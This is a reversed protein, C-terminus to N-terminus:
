FIFGLNVLTERVLRYKEMVLPYQGYAVSMTAEDLTLVYTVYGALDSDFDPYYGNALGGVSNTGKVLFGAEYLKQMNDSNSTYSFTGSYYDQSVERFDAFEDPRTNVWESLFTNIVRSAYLECSAEDDHELIYKCAVVVCRDGVAADPVTFGNDLVRRVESVLMWSFPRLGKSFHVLVYDELFALAKKQEEWGDLFDYDYEASAGTTTGLTYGLDLLETFYFPNGNSDYGLLEHQLTDNFLLFSGTEAYFGRRLISVSDQASPDPLFTDLRYEYSPALGDEKCGALLVMACLACRWVYKRIKRM